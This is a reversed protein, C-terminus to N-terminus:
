HIRVCRVRRLARFRHREVAGLTGVLVREFHQGDDERSCEDGPHLVRVERRAQASHEAQAANGVSDAVGSTIGFCYTSVGKKQIKM